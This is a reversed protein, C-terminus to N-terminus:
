RAIWKAKYSLVGGWGGCEFGWTHSFRLHFRCDPFALQFVVVFQLFSLDWWIWPDKYSLSSNVASSEEEPPCSSSSCDAHHQHTVCHASQRDRMHQAPAPACATYLFRATVCTARAGLCEPSSYHGPRAVNHLM